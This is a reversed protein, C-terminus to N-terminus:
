ARCLPDNDACDAGSIVFEQCILFVTMFDDPLWTEYAPVPATSRTFKREQCLMSKLGRLIDNALSLAEELQALTTGARKMDSATASVHSGGEAIGAFRICSWDIVSRDTHLFRLQRRVYSSKPCAVYRLPISDGM